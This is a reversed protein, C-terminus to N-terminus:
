DIVVLQASSYNDSTLNSAAYAGMNTYGTQTGIFRGSAGGWQWAGAETYVWATSPQSTSTKFNTSSGNYCIYKVGGDNYYLYYEGAAAGAEVYVKAAENVNETVTVKQGSGSIKVFYYTKGDIETTLYYAEGIVPALNPNSSSGPNQPEAKGCGTNICVGGQYNHGLAKIDETKTQGCGSVTCTYTM